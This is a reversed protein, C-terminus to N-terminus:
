NEENNKITKTLQEIIKGKSDINSTINKIKTENEQEINTIQKNLDKIEEQKRL